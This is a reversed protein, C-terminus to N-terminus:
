SIHHYLYVLFCFFVQSYATHLVEDVDSGSLFCPMLGPIEM